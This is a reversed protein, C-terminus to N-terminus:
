EDTLMEVDDPSLIKDQHFDHPIQNGSKITSM